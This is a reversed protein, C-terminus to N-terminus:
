LETILYIGKDNNYRGSANVKIIKDNDFLQIYHCQHYHFFLITLFCITLTFKWIVLHQTKLAAMKEPM